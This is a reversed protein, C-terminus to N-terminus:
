ASKSINQLSYNNPSFHPTDAAAIPALDSPQAQATSTLSPTLFVISIGLLTHSITRM